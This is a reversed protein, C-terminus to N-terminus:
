DLAYLAGWDGSALPADEEWPRASGSFAARERPGWLLLSAGIARADERWGADGRLLSELRRHVEAADIGHSWLHGEYGLVLPHGCLAVPHNFTPAVAVRETLPRAALAACVAEYEPLRLIELRPGRGLSAATVSLVGSFLLGVVAVVAWPRRLRSLILTQISPLALLYCWLMVKTNDWAWPALRVFFLAGLVGLPPGLVLLDERRGERWAVVLAALALPLFLGFNVLLFVLPNDGAMVWGPQWGLLSVARFGNTVQWVGWTAPLVAWALSPWALRLRRSGVAWAAYVLSLLLFSHLHVLPLAGWLIGEVWPPLGVGGRLLRRRWSWLLVLGTPLALLYGRQPVFLTLYLNKWAVADQYDLLRGTWLVQFGALGGSFVFGAVALAGGWRRLALGTAAAGALGLLPWVARLGVGVVVLAATLLDVGLPYQLREGVAIPNDPWFRAGQSFFHVYTWHLPLDGYNSPVLTLLRDGQQYVLWGFQRLSVVAFALLALVELRSLGRLRTALSWTREGDHGRASTDTRTMWWVASAAVLAGALLATWAVALSLAGAITSLLAAFWVAMSAGVLAGTLLAPAPNPRETL